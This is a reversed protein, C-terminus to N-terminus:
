RWGIWDKLIARKILDPFVDATIGKKRIEDLLSQATDALQIIEDSILSESAMAVIYSISLRACNGFENGNPSSESEIEPSCSLSSM